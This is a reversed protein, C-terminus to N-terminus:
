YLQGGLRLYEKLLGAAEERRVDETLEIGRRALSAPWDAPKDGEDFGVAEADETRAGCVLHRIGAFHLAGFCMACPACSSLLIFDGVTSLDHTALTRQALLLAVMEAHLASAGALRVRNIGLAVLALEPTLVAAGFPGGGETINQATARLVFDMADSLDSFRRSEQNIADLWDPMPLIIPMTSEPVTQRLMASGVAVRLRACVVRKAAQFGRRGEGAAILKRPGNMRPM